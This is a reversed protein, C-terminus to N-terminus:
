EAGNSYYMFYCYLARLNDCDVIDGFELASKRYEPTHYHFRAPIFYIGYLGRPTSEDLKDGMLNSLRQSAGYDWRVRALAFCLGRGTLRKERETREEYPTAYAEAITKWAQRETM